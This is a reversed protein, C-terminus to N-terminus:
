TKGLWSFIVAVVVMLVLSFVIAGLSSIFSDIDNEEEEKKKKSEEQKKKLQELQQRKLREGDLWKQTERERLIISNNPSIFHPCNCSRYAKYSFEPFKESLTLLIEKKSEVSLIKVAKNLKKAFQIEKQQLAFKAVRKVTEDDGFKTTLFADELLGAIKAAEHYQKTEVVFAMFLFAPQKNLMRLDQYLSKLKPHYECAFDWNEKLIKIGEDFEDSNQEPDFDQQEEGKEQSQPSKDFDHKQQEDSLFEHAANLQSLREKAFEKDGKFVDPHYIKVLSRYTAKVLEFDSAHPLGLVEYPNIFKGNYQM